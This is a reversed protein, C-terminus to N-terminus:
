RSREKEAGSTIGENKSCIHPTTIEAGHLCEVSDYHGHHFVLLVNDAPLVFVTRHSYDRGAARCVHALKGAAIRLSLVHLDAHLRDGKALARLHRAFTQHISMSIPVGQWCLLGALM